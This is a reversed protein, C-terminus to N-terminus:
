GPVPSARSSSRLTPFLKRTRARQEISRQRAWERFQLLPYTEMRRADCALFYGEGTKAVHQIPIVVRGMALDEVVYAQQVMAVGVGDAAAQLCLATNALAINRASPTAASGASALWISWAKPRMMSHIHTTRCLDDFSRIGQAIEPSCAPVFADEFLLDAQLGRWHGDGQRVVFDADGLEEVDDARTVTAIAVDVEPYQACFSALRPILWKTAFSPIVKLRIQGPKSRAVFEDVTAEVQDFLDGIRQALDRGAETLEIERGSKRFLVVGLAGELQRIQQSVAGPTVGLLEAARRVGGAKSVADFVRLSGLRHRLKRM